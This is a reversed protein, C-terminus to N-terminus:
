KIVEMPDRIEGHVASWAVTAPSALYIYSDRSGMRGAFNRNSTSICVEGSALIGGHIGMCPGCGPMAVVCGADLFIDLLGEHMANKYVDWSAPQVITRVKIKKGELVQACVRLDEIRSNTCTGIYAKDIAVGVMSSVTAYNDVTHPCALGPRIESLDYSYIASYEADTDAWIVEWDDRKARNSIYQIVKDDPKCITTKAGMEIGMNCITMRESISLENTGHFEVAKYIAGSAGLDGIIRIILDKAYVGQQFNGKLDIRITDPVLFWTKGTAWIAAADTRGIGAAFAGLAGGTCTHSDSGVIIIGPLIFGEQCMVQHCIGGRSNLDYFHPLNNTEVFKRVRDQKSAHVETPPPVAHDFVIVIREKYAIRQAGTMKFINIVDSVNDDSMCFHPFIEVYEGAHITRGVWKGLIKEVFTKGM